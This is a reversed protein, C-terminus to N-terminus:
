EHPSIIFKFFRHHDTIRKPTNDKVMKSRIFDTNGKKYADSMKAFVYTFTFVLVCVTLIIAIAGAGAFIEVVIIVAGFVCVLLFQLSSLGFFKIPRNMKKQTSLTKM